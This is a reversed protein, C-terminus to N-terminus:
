RVGGQLILEANRATEDSEAAKEDARRLAEDAARQRELVLKSTMRFILLCEEYLPVAEEYRQGSLADNARNFIAEASYFEQRLAVNAKLDLATQRETSAALSLYMIWATNAIAKAGYYDEAEWRDIADLGVNDAQSLYDPLFEAARDVIEERLDYADRAVKLGEFMVLAKAAGLRAGEYDEAEWKAIADLGITDVMQLVDPVLERAREAIEERFFYAELGDRLTLYMPLANDAGAKAGSYDKAEWKDIADLGITDVTLLYDPVLREAVEVIEERVTYAVVGDRLALYMTLAGDASAKAGYYDKAQYKKEADELVNDAELLYDPVLEGAGANVAALRADSLEGAKKDYYLAYLKDILAEYAEAALTYRAASEQAGDRTSTNKQREAQSFLSEASEWDSPLFSSAEFDGALKRATAARAAADNLSNLTAQDPATSSPVSSPPPSESPAPSTGETPTEAPPTGACSVAIFVAAVSLLILWIFKKEM